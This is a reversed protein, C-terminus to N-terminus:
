IAGSSIRSILLIRWCSVLIANNTAKYLISHQLYFKQGLNSERCMSGISFRASNISDGLPSWHSVTFVYVVLAVPERTSSTPGVKNTHAIFIISIIGLTCTSICLLIYCFHCNQDPCLTHPFQNIVINFSCKAWRAGQNSNFQSVSYGIM